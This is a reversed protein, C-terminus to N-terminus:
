SRFSKCYEDFHRVGMDRNCVKCLVVLNSLDDNGGRARAQKHGAEWHDISVEQECAACSGHISDGCDRRWLENRRQKPVPRKPMCCIPTHDHHEPIPDDLLKYL